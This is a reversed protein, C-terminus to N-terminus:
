KLRRTDQSGCQTCLCYPVVDDAHYDLYGCVHCERLHLKSSIVAQSAALQAKLSELEDAATKLLEMSEQGDNMWRNWNRLRHAIASM